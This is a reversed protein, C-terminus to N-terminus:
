DVCPILTLLAADLRSGQRRVLERQAVQRPTSGRIRRVEKAIGAEARAAGAARRAAALRRPGPVHNRLVRALSGSDYHRSGRNGLEAKETM